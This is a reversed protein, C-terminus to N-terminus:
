EVSYKAREWSLRRNGHDGETGTIVKGEMGDNRCEKEKRDANM